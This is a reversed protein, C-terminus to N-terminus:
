SPQSTLTAHLTSSQGGRRVTLAVQDGPAHGAIASVVADASSVARDDIATIVDGQRLGAQAAPSGSRVAAVAASSSGSMQVGLYAHSVKGGSVLQQAVSRVTNSPIAFGVGDSGGSDSEIQANVGIVKGTSDLLPGGSNGHNIAADTQVAGTITYHNPAQISRNLASVVGTTLSGALGFPSGIAVVGDGVQVGSSNGFALPQLKASPVNVRIVAVDTTPDTGVLRASAKTGDAFAVQISSAGSVVHDNTFIDGQKDIVFGSGEAQSAAGSGFPANSTGASTVTIDVVGQKANTYIQDVTLGRATSAV